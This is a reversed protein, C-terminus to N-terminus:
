QISCKWRREFQKCSNSAYHLTVEEGVNRGTASVVILKGCKYCFHTHCGPAVCSMHNCGADKVTPMTCGPCYRWGKKKMLKEFGDGKCSHPKEKKKPDKPPSDPIAKSCAKCWKHRCSPVACTLVKSQLYEKRPLYDSEKCSPCELRVSHQLIELEEFKDTCDQPLKLKKLIIETVNGPDPIGRDVLCVPCQIPFRGNSLFSQVHGQLCEKCFRHECGNMQVSDMLPYTELCVACDFSIKIARPTDRQSVLKIHELLYQGFMTDPRWPESLTASAAAFRLNPPAPLPHSYSNGSSSAASNSSSSSTLRSRSGMSSPGADPALLQNWLNVYDVSATLSEEHACLYSERLTQENQYSMIRHYDDKASLLHATIYQSSRLPHFIDTGTGTVDHPVSSELLGGLFSATTVRSTSLMFGPGNPHDVRPHPDFVVFVDEELLAMKVCVASQSSQTIVTAAIRRTNEKCLLDLVPLISDYSNYREMRFVQEFLPVDLLEAPGMKLAGKLHKGISVIKQVTREALIDGLLGHAEEEKSRGESRYERARVQKELDLITRACYMSILSCTSAGHANSSDEHDVSNCCCTPGDYTIVEPWPNALTLQHLIEKTDVDASPWISERKQKKSEAIGRDLIPLLSVVSPTDM